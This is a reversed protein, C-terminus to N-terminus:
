PEDPEEECPPPVVEVTASATAVGRPGAARVEAVHPGPEEAAADWVGETGGFAFPPAARVDRVVGDVLFEVRRVGRNAEVEWRVPGCVRQGDALALALVRPLPLAANRVTVVVSASARTGNAAVARVTLTRRGNAEWATDWGSVEGGFAFPAETRTERLEGDVLFEVRAAPRGAPVAEWQTRDSLVSGLRLAPITVDFPRPPPVQGRAYSRVYAMYRTWDWHPGPDTRGSYGGLRGPRTPHPVEDHGIVHRRNVPLVRSRLVAAVIRASARYQADTVTWPVHAYGEHEVGVSRRNMWGNGAHWASRTLAVMQTSEGGRGVVYHASVRAKPNRFWSITGAYSGETTHVVVYRILSPSRYARAYNSPSAAVFRDAHQPTAAAATGPLGLAAVLAAAAALRGTV